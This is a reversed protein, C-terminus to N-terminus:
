LISDVNGEKIKALYIFTGSVKQQFFLLSKYNTVERTQSLAVYTILHDYDYATIEQRRLM